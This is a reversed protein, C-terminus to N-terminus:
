CLRSRTTGASLFFIYRQWFCGGIRPVKKPQQAEVSVCLAFLWAGLAASVILKGMTENKGKAGHEKSLAIQDSDARALVKPPITLGIQKAAKL